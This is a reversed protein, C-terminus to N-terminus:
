YTVRWVINITNGNGGFNVTVSEYVPAADTPQRFGLVPDVPARNLDDETIGHREMVQAAKARCAEAEAPFTTRDAKRLLLEVLRVRKPDPMSM